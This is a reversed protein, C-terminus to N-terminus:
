KSTNTRSQGAHGQLLVGVNDVPQKRSDGILVEVLDDTRGTVSTDVYCLAVM